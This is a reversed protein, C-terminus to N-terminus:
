MLQKEHSWGFTKQFDNRFLSFKIQDKGMGEMEISHRGKVKKGERKEM